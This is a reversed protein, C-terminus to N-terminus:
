QILSSKQPYAIMMVFVHHLEYPLEIIKRGKVLFLKWLHLGRPRGQGRPRGRPCM